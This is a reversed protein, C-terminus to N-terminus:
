LCPFDIAFVGGGVGGAFGIPGGVPAFGKGVAGLDLGAVGGM